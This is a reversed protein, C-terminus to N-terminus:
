ESGVFSIGQLMSLNDLDDTLSGSGRRGGDIGSSFREWM